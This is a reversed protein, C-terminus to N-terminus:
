GALKVSIADSLQKAYSEHFSMEYVNPKTQIIVPRFEGGFRNVSSLYEVSGDKLELRIFSNLWEYSIDLITSAVCSVTEFIPNVCFLSDKNEGSAGDSCFIRMHAEHYDVKM